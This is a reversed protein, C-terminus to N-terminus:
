NDNRAEKIAKALDRFEECDRCIGWLQALVARAKEPENNMLYAEGLYEHASLHKPNLALAREYAKFAEPLQGTKRYSYGLYNYAEASKPNRGLYKKLLPIAESYKNEVINMKIEHMSPASKLSPIEGGASAFLSGPILLCAIIMRKM